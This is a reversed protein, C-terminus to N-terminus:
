VFAFRSHFDFPFHFPWKPGADALGAWGAWGLVLRSRAVALRAVAKATVSPHLKGKWRWRIGERSRAKEARASGRKLSLRGTAKCALFLLIPGGAPEEWRGRVTSGPERTERSGISFGSRAPSLSSRRALGGGASGIGDEGVGM